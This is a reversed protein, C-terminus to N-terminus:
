LEQQLSSRHKFPGSGSIGYENPCGRGSTPVSAAGCACGAATADAPVPTITTIVPQAVPQAPAPAVLQTVAVPPAAPAGCNRQEALTALYQQRSNLADIEKGAADQFDMGFWVPWIVLGIVGAAVNQAVKGGQESSLNGIKANTAQVEAFIAACDAYRDQPQVVAVPQPARGACGAVAALLLVGWRARAKIASQGPSIYQNAM